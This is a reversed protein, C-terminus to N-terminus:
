MACPPVTAFSVIVLDEQKMWSYLCMSLCISTVTHMCVSVCVSLLCVSLCVSLYSGLWRVSGVPMCFYMFVIFVNM